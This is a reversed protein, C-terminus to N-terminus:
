SQAGMEVLVTGELVRAVYTPVPKTAPFSTPEGGELTFASGHKWCELTKAQPDVEGESLSVNAHSCRDGIVFVEDGLRVVALTRDRVEFRQAEGDTLDDLRCLEIADPQKMAESM